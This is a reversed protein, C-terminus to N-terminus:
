LNLQFTTGYFRPDGLTGGYTYTTASDVSANVYYTKDFLNRGWFKLDWAGNKDRVGLYAGAIGYGPVKSYPDTNLAGYYESRYSWTGGVYALTPTTGIPFDYQASVNYVLKSVGTLQRGSLDCVGGNAATVQLYPCTGNKYNRFYADNYTAGGGISLGDIPKARLDLEVGQTRVDGANTLYSRAIPGTPTDVLISQNAQYGRDDSLFLAINTTLRQNFLKSKFGIEYADVIEPKFTTPAPGNALQVPVAMNIGASKFGRSYGAYVNIDPTVHYLANVTGSPRGGKTHADFSSTPAFSNRRSVIQAVQADTLGSFVPDSLPTANDSIPFSQFTGKRTEYTYRLGASVDLKKEIAHWTGNAFASYSNMIQLQYGSQTWNNLSEDPFAPGLLWKGADSGYTNYPVEKTRQWFYYLGGTYEFRKGSASAVRLEQSFQSQNTPLNSAINVSLATRDGDLSPDWHWFRYASISTLNHAAPLTKDLQLSVGGTQMNVTYPTNLDIQRGAPDFPLPTYNLDRSRDYFDRSTATSGDNRTKPLAGRGIQFGAYQQQNNYDGILRAKFSRDDTRYAIEGRIGQNHLDQWYDRYITNYVTGDRDTKIGALRVAFGSKGLPASAAFKIQTYQFNGYSLELNLEPTYSAENTRIDIVGAVTNKGFLTGQPGRLVDISEVDFQDFVAIAPRAYYVGNVYVGVGPEIGSNVAGGTTGLGRIQITVNRPNFGLIQLSPVQLQVQRLNVAGQADLEAASLHTVAIPVEQLNEKRHRATITVAGLTAEPPASDAEPAVPEAPAAPSADALPPNEAPPAPPESPPAPNEAAPPQAPATGEAPQEPAPAAPTQPAPPAPPPAADPTQASVAGSM